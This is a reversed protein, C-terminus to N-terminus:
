PAWSRSAFMADVPPEFLHNSYNSLTKVAIALIIELIQREGYGASLFADVDHRSPLGRTEVMTRTFSSLAALKADSIPTGNRIADTVDVPVKSMQDAILSHAAVCYRCGNSRSVTLFVVEQEVPTFGSEQRFLQYGQLYTELLGPSNAMGAYMNPVFGLSKQAAELASKARPQADAVTRLPLTMKYEASM